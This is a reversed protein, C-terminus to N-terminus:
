QNAALVLHEFNLCLTVPKGTGDSRRESKLFGLNLYPDAM